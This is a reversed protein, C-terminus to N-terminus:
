LVNYPDTPPPFLIISLLESLHDKLKGSFHVKGECRRVQSIAPIVGPAM